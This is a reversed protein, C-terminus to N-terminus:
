EHDAALLTVVVIVNKGCRGVKGRPCKCFYIMCSLEEEITKLQLALDVFSLHEFWHFCCCYNWKDIAISRDPKIAVLGFINSNVGYTHM